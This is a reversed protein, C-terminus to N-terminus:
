ARLPDRLRLIRRRRPEAAKAEARARRAQRGRRLQQVLREQDELVAKTFEPSYFM